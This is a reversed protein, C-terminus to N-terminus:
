EGPNDYDSSEQTYMNGTQVSPSRTNEHNIIDQYMYKMLMAQEKKRKAKHNMAVKYLEKGSYYFLFGSNVLTIATSTYNEEDSNEHVTNILSSIANYIAIGSMVLVMTAGRVRYATIIRNQENQAAILSENIFDKLRDRTEQSESLAGNIMLNHLKDFSRRNLGRDMINMGHTTGMFTVMVLWKM